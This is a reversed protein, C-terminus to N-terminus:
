HEYVRTKSAMNRGAKKAVPENQRVNEAFKHARKARGAQKEFPNNRVTQGKNQRRKSGTINKRRKVAEPQVHIKGRKRKKVVSTTTLHTNYVGRAGFSHLATTLKSKSMNKVRDTFKLVGKLFNQDDGHLKGQLIDLTETLAASCEEVTIMDQPM